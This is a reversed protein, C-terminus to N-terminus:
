ELDGKSRESSPASAQVFLGRNGAQAQLWAAGLQFGEWKRGLRRTPLPDHLDLVLVAARLEGTGEERGPALHPHWLLKMEMAISMNQKTKEKKFHRLLVSVECHIWWTFGDLSTHTCLFYMSVFWM